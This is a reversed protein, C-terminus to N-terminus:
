CAICGDPLMYECDEWVHEYQKLAPLNPNLKPLNGKKVLPLMFDIIHDKILFATSMRKDNEEEEDKHTKFAKLNETERALRGFLFRRISKLQCVRTAVARFAHDVFRDKCPHQGGVWLTEEPHAHTAVGEGVKPGNALPVRLIEVVGVEAGKKSFSM